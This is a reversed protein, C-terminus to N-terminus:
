NLAPVFHGIGQNESRKQGNAIRTQTQCRWLRSFCTTKEQNKKESGIYSMKVTVEWLETNM